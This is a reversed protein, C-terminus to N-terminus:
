YIALMKFFCGHPTSTFSQTYNISSILIKLIIKLESSSIKVTKDCKPFIFRADNLRNQYLWIDDDEVELIKVQRLDKSFFIFLSDKINSDPYNTSVLNTLSKIGKRFDISDSYLYISKDPFDVM